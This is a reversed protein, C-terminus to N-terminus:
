RTQYTNRAITATAETMKKETGLGMWSLLKWMFRKMLHRYLAEAANDLAKAFEDAEPMEISLSRPDSGTINVM